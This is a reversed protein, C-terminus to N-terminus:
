FYYYISCGIMKDKSYNERYFDNDFDQKYYLIRWDWHHWAVGFGVQWAGEAEIDEDRVANYLGVGDIYFKSSSGASFLNIKLRAYVPMHFSSKTEDNSGYWLTYISLGPKIGFELQVPSRYNGIKVSAGVNWYMVMDFDSDTDDYPSPIFAIDTLELGFNFIGGNARRRAARQQKKYQAYERQKAAYIDKVKIRTAEDRAYSLAANCSTETTFMSFDKAKSLAVWNSVQSAYESNPYRTLFSMLSEQKSNANLLWFDHYEVCKDYAGRNSNDILYKGGAENFENYAKLLDNNNYYQVGKLEHVKKRVEALVSSKPHKEIFNEVETLSKSSKLRQWEDISQLDEIAANAETSFIKFQSTLLYRKYAQITNTRRTEEWLSYDAIRNNIDQSYKGDPYQKLFDQLAALTGKTVAAEYREKEIRQMEAIEAKRKKVYNTLSQAEAEHCVCFFFALVMSIIAATRM